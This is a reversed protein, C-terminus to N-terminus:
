RYHSNLPLAWRSRAAATATRQQMELHRVIDAAVLYAVAGLMVAVALKRGARRERPQELRISVVPALRGPHPSATEGGARAVPMEILAHRHPRVVGQKWELERRLGVIVVPDDVISVDGIFMRPICAEEGSRRNVVVIESWTARRYLWENHRVNLIPPYFSFPRSELQLLPTPLASIQM